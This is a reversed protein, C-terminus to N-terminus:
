LGTYTATGLNGTGYAYSQWCPRCVHRCGARTTRVEVFTREFMGKSGWANFGLFKLQNHMDVLGTNFPTGTCLVRMDGCLNLVAKSQLPVPLM